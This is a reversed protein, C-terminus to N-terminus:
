VLRCKFAGGAKCILEGIRISILVVVSVHIRIGHNDLYDVYILLYMYFFRWSHGFALM